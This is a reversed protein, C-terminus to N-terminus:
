LCCRLDTHRVQIEPFAHTETRGYTVTVFERLRFSLVVPNIPMILTLDTLLPM